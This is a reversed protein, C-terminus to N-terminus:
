YIEMFWNYKGKKPHTDKKTHHTDKHGISQISNSLIDM